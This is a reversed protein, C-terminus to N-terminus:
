SGSKITRLYVIGEGIESVPLTAPVQTKVRNGAIGRARFFRLIEITRRRALFTDDESDSTAQLQLQLNLQPFNELDLVIGDLAEQSEPSLFISGTDFNVGAFLGSYRDCGGADVPIGSSTDLCADFNDAM